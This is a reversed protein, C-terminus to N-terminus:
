CRKCVVTYALAMLSYSAVGALYSAELLSTIFLFMALANSLQNSSVKFFNYLLIVLILVSGFVGMSYFAQLVLNHAHAPTYGILYSFESIAASSVGLGYGTFPRELAVDFVVPWIFTRGTFTLLENPDGHRSLLVLLSSFDILVAFIVFILSSGLMLYVFFKFRGKEILFLSALLVAAISTKSNSLLLCCVALFMMVKLFSFNLLQKKIATVLFLIFIACFGGMANSTNLVGSMRKSVFLEDDYWYIHRGLDPLFLYYFISCIVVVSFAIVIGSIVFDDSYRLYLYKIYLYISIYSFLVISSRFANESFPIMVFGLLFFLVLFLEHNNIIGWNYNHRIFYAIPLAAAAGWALLRIIIQFDVAESGYERIRFVFLSGIVIFILTCLDFSKRRILM